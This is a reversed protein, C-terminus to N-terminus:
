GGFLHLLNLRRIVVPRFGNRRVRDSRKQVREGIRQIVKIELSELLGNRLIVAHSRILLYGKLIREVDLLRVPSQLMPLKKRLFSRVRPPSDRLPQARINRRVHAGKGIIHGKFLSHKILERSSEWVERPVQQSDRVVKMVQHSRELGPMIVALRHLTGIGNFKDERGQEGVVRLQIVVRQVAYM